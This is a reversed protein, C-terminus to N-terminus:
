GAQLAIRQQLRQALEREAHQEEVRSAVIKPIAFLFGGFLGLLILVFMDGYVQTAVSFTIANVALMVTLSVMLPLVRGDVFPQRCLQLARDVYRTVSWLLWLICILGPLGLEVMIKGLGGEGSGGAIGSMNFLYGGQSAIGLGGGLVGVRNYAWQVPRIGLEVFRNSADGFVTTGRAIYNRLSESYNDLNVLEFGFWTLLALYCFSLFYRADLKKRYYLYATFYFFLFLAVLMLMKRRGTLAVAVLMVAIIAFVLLYSRQKHSSVALALIMCAATSIHWAAIEGVRMIGAYSELVTGQDYIKLGEGVEGLAQSDVGAFALVVSVAVVVGAVVYAKLFRRIDEVSNVLYYGVILALFPSIYSALGIMGVLINNYRLISHILQILLVALFVTLPMRMDDTWRLFPELSYAPGRRLWIGLLIAAFLVGVTVIFIIPEGPTLKRVVDQTFGIMLLLGLATRNDFLSYAAAIALVTLFILSIM